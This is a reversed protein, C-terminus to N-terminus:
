DFLDADVVDDDTALSGAAVLGTGAVAQMSPVTRQASAARPVLGAPRQPQQRAAAKRVGELTAIEAEIREATLSADKEIGAAVEFDNDASAVGAQIRLRALRLAAMTRNSAAERAGMRPPTSFEGRLPFAPQPNMPDGVRVDTLTRVENLPRPGQAGDVPATVDVLNKLAPGDVDAGPTYVTSTTDAAVDNTSGPVLGPAQVDAFAEPTKADVTSEPAPEAPPEPIPQAPNQEDATRLMATRVHGEIGAAVAIAQLGRNLALIQNRQSSFVQEHQMLRTAQRRLREDQGRIIGAQRNIIEQQEALAALAPRAM